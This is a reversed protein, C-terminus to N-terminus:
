PDSPRKAAAERERRARLRRVQLVALLAVPALGLVGFLAASALLSKMTLAMAFTVDLWALIVIHM